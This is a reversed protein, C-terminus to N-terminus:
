LRVATPWVDLGNHHGSDTGAVMDDASAPGSPPRGNRGAPVTPGPRAASGTSGTPLHAVPREAHETPPRGGYVLRQQHPLEGVVHDEEVLTLQVRVAPRLQGGVIHRNHVALDTAQHDLVVLQHAHPQDVPRDHRGASKTGGRNTGM